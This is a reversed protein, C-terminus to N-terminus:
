LSGGIRPYVKLHMLEMSAQRNAGRGTKTYDIRVIISKLLRSQEEANDTYELAEIVRKIQPVLTQIDKNSPPQKAGLTKRVTALQEELAKKRQLYESPLYVGTEVLEQAKQIQAQIQEERQRLLIENKRSVAKQTKVPKYTACWDKLIEILQEMVISLYVSTTPCGPTLCRLLRENGRLGHNAMAKGCQSCYLLGALPNVFKWGKNVPHLHLNNDFKQQVIDFVEKSVIPEHTNEVIIPTSDIRKKQRQGNEITSITVRKAWVLCGTYVPNRLVYKVSCRDWEGGKPRKIGMENLTRNIDGISKEGSAYWDFIMRVIDAKEDDPMLKLKNDPSRKYGYPPITGIFNGAQASRTRGVMMRQAIKRYEFRAFFMSFDLMDEDSPNAPNIDRSPTIILCRGAVFTYKIIEQDISDGRGLRDVDNVIVGAYLGQKVDNLLLQMQPRAAISDGTVLEAYERVVHLQRREALSWLAARHRALTEGDGRAEAEIDARSKRLYIAYDKM